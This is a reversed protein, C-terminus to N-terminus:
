LALGDCRHKQYEVTERNVGEHLYVLNMVNRMISFLLSTMASSPLVIQTKYMCNPCARQGELSIIAVTRKECTSSLVM